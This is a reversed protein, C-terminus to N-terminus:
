GLVFDKVGRTPTGVRKDCPILVRQPLQHVRSELPGGESAVDKPVLLVDVAIDAASQVPVRLAKRVDPHGDSAIRAHQGRRHRVLYATVPAVLGENEPQRLGPHPRGVTPSAEGPV